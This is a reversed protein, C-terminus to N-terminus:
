RGFVLSMGVAFGKAAAISTSWTPAAGSGNSTLVQGATGYNAGGIGLQGSTGIRFRETANNNRFVIPTTTDNSTPGIAFFIGPAYNISATGSAGASGISYNTSVYGGANTNEVLNSIYAGSSNGSIELRAGSGSTKGVLLNGSADLTMAQTFTATTGAAGTTTGTTYWSHVGSSQKYYAATALNLYVLNTGNWAANSYLAVYSGDNTRGEIAASAALQIARSTSAWASPTVGIGLNGASDLTASVGGGTILKMANSESRLRVNGSTTGTDVMLLDATSSGSSIRANGGSVDLKQAPSSTGIGLGTSTLRMGETANAAFALSDSSHIYALYGAYEGTGSDADAFFLNSQNSDTSAITIGRQGTGAIV